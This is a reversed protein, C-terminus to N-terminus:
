LKACLHVMSEVHTTILKIDEKRTIDKKKKIFYRLIKRDYRNRALYSLIRRKFLNPIPMLMERSVDLLTSNLM